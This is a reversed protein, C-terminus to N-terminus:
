RLVGSRFEVEVGAIAADLLRDVYALRTELTERRILLLEALGIEGEEYSRRALMENEGVSPLANKELEEVASLKELYADLAAKVETYSVRFLAELEGRLRSARATGVVRLEGVTL